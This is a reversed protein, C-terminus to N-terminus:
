INFDSLKKAVFYTANGNTLINDLGNEDTPIIKKDVLSSLLDEDDDAVAEQVFVTIPFGLMQNEVFSSEKEMLRVIEEIFEEVELSPNYSDKRELFIKSKELQFINIHIPRVNFPDEVFGVIENDILM